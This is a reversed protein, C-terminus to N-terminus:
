IVVVDKPLVKPFNPIVRSCFQTYSPFVTSFNPQKWQYVRSRPCKEVVYVTTPIVPFVLDFSNDVTTHYFYGSIWLNDVPINM